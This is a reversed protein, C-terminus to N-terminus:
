DVKPLQNDSDGTTGAQEAVEPGAQGPTPSAVGDSRGQVTEPEPEAGAYVPGTPSYSQNPVLPGQWVGSVAYNKDDKDLRDYYLDLELQPKSYQILRRFPIPCWDRGYRKRVYLADERMEIIYDEDKYTAQRRGFVTRKAM